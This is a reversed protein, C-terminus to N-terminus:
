SRRRRRTITRGLDLDSLKEEHCLRSFPAVGQDFAKELRGEAGPVHERHVDPAPEAQVAGQGFAVRRRGLEGLTCARVLPVDALPELLLGRGSDEVDIIRACLRSPPPVRERGSVVLGQEVLRAQVEDRRDGLEHRGADPRQVLEELRKSAALADRVRRVAGVEM